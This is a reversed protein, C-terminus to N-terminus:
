QGSNNYRTKESIIMLLWNSAIAQEERWEDYSFLQSNNTDLLM